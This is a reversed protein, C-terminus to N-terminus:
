EWWIIFEETTLLGIPRILNLEEQSAPRHNLLNWVIWSGIADSIRFTPNLEYESINETKEITKYFFKGCDEFALNWNNNWDKITQGYIKSLSSKTRSNVTELRQLGITAAWIAGVRFYFDWEKEEITQLVSFKEKLNFFLTKSVLTVSPFLLGAKKTLEKRRKSFFFSSIM